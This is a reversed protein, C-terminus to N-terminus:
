IISLFFTTFRGKKKTKFINKLRITEFNEVSNEVSIVVKDVSLRPNEVPSKIQCFTKAKSSLSKNIRITNGNPFSKSLQNNYLYTVLFLKFGENERLQKM